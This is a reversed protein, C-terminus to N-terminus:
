YKGSLQRQLIVLIKWKISAAINLIKWKLYAIILNYCPNFYSYISILDICNDMRDQIEVIFTIATNPSGQSGM